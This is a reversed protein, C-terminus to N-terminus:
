GELTIKEVSYWFGDAFYFKIMEREMDMPLASYLNRFEEGRDYPREYRAFDEVEEIAEDLSTGLYLLHEIERNYSPGENRSTVYIDM